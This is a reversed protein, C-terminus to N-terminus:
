SRWQETKIQYLVCRQLKPYEQLRPHDFEGMGTLGIKQMVKESAHNHLTCTSIVRELQLDEFAYKLCRKAGETAYGRGWASKKLRWGIDTAPTFHSDFTQYALGIFGIFEGREKIEVAFYCYGHTSYHKVLRNLFEVSEEKNLPKPFHKMVVPDANMAAFEELDDLFWPRFGLRPSTFLYKTAPEM